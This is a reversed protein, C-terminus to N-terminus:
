PQPEGAAGATARSDRDTRRLRRLARRAREQAYPNRAIMRASVIALITVGELVLVM